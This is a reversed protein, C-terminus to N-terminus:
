DSMLHVQGQNASLVDDLLQVAVAADKVLPNNVLAMLAKAKSGQIAAQITLDEYAKVQHVLGRIALPMEGYSLPTAGSRRIVCNTEVVADDPLGAIAGCNPVNVVHVQGTDQWISQMLSVAAESYLAGGRKSLAEPKTDLDPNRYSDFLQQEVAIVDDARTHGTKNLHDQQDKLMQQQLYFYKLYSSPIFGLASAFEAPMTVEPINKVVSNRLLQSAQPSQLIDKGQIYLKGIFSLHNLGAFRCDVQDMSLGLSSAVERQMTLPVNCLGICKISTYSNVAQTVMGSPNTFNILWADPCLQQMDRCIEMMVPITRLAKAMGGAGTTEQGILGHKMPIREDLRRAQLGGVRFQCVVFDAGPLAARRDLTLTVPLHMGAKRLMRVVMDRIIGAKEQGQKVDALVIESVAFSDKRQIIGDILEPTYSSGGGIIVLKM